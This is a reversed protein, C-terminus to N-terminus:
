DKDESEDYEAPCYAYTASYSDEEETRDFFGQSDKKAEPRADQAPRPSNPENMARDFSEQGYKKKFSPLEEPLVDTRETVPYKDAM